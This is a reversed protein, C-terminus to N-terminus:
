TAALWGDGMLKAIILIFRRRDVVVFVATARAATDDDNNGDGINDKVGVLLLV